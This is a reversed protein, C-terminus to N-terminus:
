ETVFSIVYYTILASSIGTMGKLKIIFLNHKMENWRAHKIAIGSTYDSIADHDIRMRQKLLNFLNLGHTYIQFITQLDAVGRM